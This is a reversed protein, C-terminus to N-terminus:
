NVRRYAFRPKIHGNVFQGKSPANLLDNFVEPPVDLYDYTAGGVYRLRLANHERDYGAAAISSSPLPQLAIIHAMATM